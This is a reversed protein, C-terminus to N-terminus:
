ISECCLSIGCLADDPEPVSPDPQATDTRNGPLVTSTEANSGPPPTGDRQVTTQPAPDVAHTDDGDSRGPQVDQYPKLPAHTTCWLGRCDRWNENEGNKASEFAEADQDAMRVVKRNPLDPWLVPHSQMTLIIEQQMPLYGAELAMRRYAASAPALARLLSAVGPVIPQHLYTLRLALTNAQFITQGSANGQGHPRGQGIHREHQLAQYDNDIAPLGAAGQIALKAQAFDSFAAASPALIQIRWPPQGAMDFQRRQLAHQLRQESAGATTPPHLPRLAHEFAAEIVAPKAHQTIAARGAEVLALSVAQKVYFWQALEVGGLGLMFIPAAALSFGIASAGRQNTPLGTTPAHPTITM